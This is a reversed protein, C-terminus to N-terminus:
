GQIRINRLCRGKGKGDKHVKMIASFDGASRNRKVEAQNVYPDGEFLFDDIWKPDHGPVKVIVHIHAPNRSGPYSGPKITHVVYRGDDDTKVWGRIRPRQWNGDIRNYVGSADTQYLYLVFGEYPTKGDEKYVRGSITLHEGPEDPSVLTAVSSVDSPPPPFPAEEAIAAISSAVVSASTFFLSCKNM